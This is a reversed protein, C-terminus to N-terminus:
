GIIHVWVTTSNRKWFLIGIKYNRFYVARNTPIAVSHNNNPQTSLEQLDSDVNYKKYAM